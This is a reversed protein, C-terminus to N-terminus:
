ESDQIPGSFGCLSAQIIPIGMQMYLGREVSHARYNEMASNWVGASFRTVLDAFLDGHLRILWDGEVCNALWAM